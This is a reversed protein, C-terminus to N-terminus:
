PERGATKLHRWDRHASAAPVPEIDTINVVVAENDSRVLVCELV